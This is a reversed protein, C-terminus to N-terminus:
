NKERHEKVLRITNDLLETGGWKGHGPVVIVANQYQKKVKEVTKDWKDIESDATNGLTKSNMSKILCGGFLIKTKPFWVVINDFTHGGGFYNCVVKDGHFDIQYSDKFSIKPVPLGLKICMSKTLESSISKAGIKHIHKMGGLCDDHYHGPILIEVNANLNNKIYDTLIKTDENTFPTDILLAKANKIYIMGNSPFRGFKKSNHWSTYIYTSKDVKYIYLDRNVKIKNAIAPSLIFILLINLIITKM